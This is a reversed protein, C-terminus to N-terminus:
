GAWKLENCNAASTPACALDVWADACIHSGAILINLIVSSSTVIDVIVIVELLNCLLNCGSVIFFVGHYLQCPLKTCVVARPAM